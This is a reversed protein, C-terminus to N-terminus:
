GAVEQASYSQRYWKANWLPQSQEDIVNINSKNNSLYTADVSVYDEFSEFQKDTPRFIPVGDHWEDPVIKEEEPIDKSSENHSDVVETASPTPQKPILAGDEEIDSLESDNTDDHALAPALNPMANDLSTPMAVPAPMVGAIVDASM